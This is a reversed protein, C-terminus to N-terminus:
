SPSQMSQNAMTDPEAAADIQGSFLAQIVAADNDFRVLQLGDSQHKVLIPEVSSGRNVQASRRAKRSGAVGSKRPRRRM